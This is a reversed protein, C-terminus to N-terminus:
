PTAEEEAIPWVVRRECAEPRRRRRASCSLLRRRRWSWFISRGSSRGFRGRDPAPLSFITVRQYTVVRGVMAAGTNFRCLVAGDRGDLALFDGDLEGTFLLETATTAIAALM